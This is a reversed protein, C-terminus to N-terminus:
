LFKFIAKREWCHQNKKHSYVSDVVLRGELTRSDQKFTALFYGNIKVWSQNCESSALEGEDSDDLINIASAYDAITKHQESLYLWDGLTAAYYGNVSVRKNLFKEPTTLLQTLSAAHVAEGNYFAEVDFKEANAPFTSCGLVSLTLLTSILNKM